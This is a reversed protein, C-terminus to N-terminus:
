KERVMAASVYGVVASRDGTMDGSNCHHLIEARTAGLRKSAALVSVVPGGGCAEAREMELIDMLCNDDFATIADIVVNDLSIAEDYPHYHSLDTSAVLLTNTGKVAEGLKEALHYCYSRVQNGIVIPLIKIDGLKMQLFPLQVEIAHEERHGRNSCEIIQEGKMLRERMEKDVPLEGLPTSYAEGAYVSIGDFFERHSPSIIVVTEYEGSHLLGYGYAATQGSYPYGAHPSLLGVIEGQIQAPKASQFLQELMNKLTKADAPYFMGAVIPPRITSM